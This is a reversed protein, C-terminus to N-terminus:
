AAAMFLQLKADDVAKQRRYQEAQLLSLAMACTPDTASLRGGLADTQVSRMGELSLPM